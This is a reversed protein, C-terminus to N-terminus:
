GLFEEANSWLIRLQVERELKQIEPLYRSAPLLPYDSGFLVKEPLYSAIYRYVEKGYLFPIAAIDYRVNAFSKKIEPMFEYFCLGGGLHCLIVKLRPHAEVLAAVEALDIRSKGSYRHGVQENVHVMLALDAEELPKVLLGLRERETKSFGQTYLAVEGLGRAGKEICRELESIARKDDGVDVMVFPVIRGDTQALELLYDNSLTLLGPDQFPFGVVFARSIGERNLYDRLGSSDVMKSSPPGYLLQFGRDKEAIRVRDKIIESPFMHTHADIVPMRIMIRKTDPKPISKESNM